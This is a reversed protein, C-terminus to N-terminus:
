GESAKPGLGLTSRSLDVIHSHQKEALRSFNITCTASLLSYSVM